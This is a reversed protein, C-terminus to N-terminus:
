TIFSSNCNAIMRSSIGDNGCVNSSKTQKITYKFETINTEIPIFNDHIIDQIDNFVRNQIEESVNLPRNFISYYHNVLENVDLTIKDKDKNLRHNVKRFFSESNNCKILKEIKFLENKEYLFINKKMIKKFNKKLRKIEEIDDSSHNNKYKILLMQHKINRLEYTFWKKKNLSKLTTTRTCSDFAFKISSTLQSYMDDIIQQKNDSGIIKINEFKEMENVLINNFKDKVEDIDFNPYLTIFEIKDDQKSENRPIMEELYNFSAIVPKHDSLNIINDDYYSLILPSSIDKSLLCHDLKAKYLGNQYSFECQSM